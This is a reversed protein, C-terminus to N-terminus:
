RLVWYRDSNVIRVEDAGSIRSRVVVFLAQAEGAGVSVADESSEQACASRSGLWALVLALMAAGLAGWGWRNGRSM